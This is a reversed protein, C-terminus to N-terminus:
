LSALVNLALAKEKQMVQEVPFGYVRVSFAAEGKRVTLGTGLDSVTDYFAQDGVGNLPTRVVDKTAVGIKAYAFVNVDVINLMVRKFPVVGGPAPWACIKRTSPSVPGGEFVPVGLVSGVQIPTLLACADTPPAAYAAQPAGLGAAVFALLLGHAANIRPRLTM